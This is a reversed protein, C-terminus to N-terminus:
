PVKKMTAEDVGETYHTGNNLKWNGKEVWMTAQVKKMGTTAKTSTILLM